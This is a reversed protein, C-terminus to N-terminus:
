AIILINQIIILFSKLVNHDILILIGIRDLETQDAKQCPFVPVKTHDTIIVLRNIFEATGINIINKIKFFLERVGFHDLQFLIVTGCFINQIRGVRHNLIIFSTLCFPQPRLIFGTVLNDEMLILIFVILGVLNNLLDVLRNVLIFGLIM